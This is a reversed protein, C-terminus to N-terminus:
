TRYNIILFSLIPFSKRDSRRPPSPLFFPVPIRISSRSPLNDERSIRMRIFMKERTFLVEKVTQRGSFFVMRPAQCIVMKRGRGCFGEVRSSAVTAFRATGQRLPGDKLANDGPCRSSTSLHPRVSPVALANRILFEDM